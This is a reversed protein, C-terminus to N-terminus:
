VMKERFLTLHEKAVAAIAAELKRDFGLPDIKTPKAEFYDRATDLYAHKIATSVNVKAGGGLILRHFTETSLGTGGHIVVPAPVATKLQEVLDFDIKPVGKYVGHATGIAPAFADVGSQEVFYVSEELGAGFAAKEDVQINDEVGAIRGLEGEVQVGKAHAYAVVEKCGAINEELPLASGDFMVSDWGADVCTKAFEIDTCHDLHILVNVPANEALPRLMAMMEYPGFKKVTSVSTQLILPCNLESAAQVVAQASLHNLINFAGVAYSHEKAYLLEEVFTKGKM